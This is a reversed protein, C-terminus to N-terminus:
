IGLMEREGDGISITSFSVSHIHLTPGPESGFRHVIDADPMVLPCSAKMM